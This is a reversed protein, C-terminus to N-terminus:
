IWMKTLTSGSTRCSNGAPIRSSNSAWKARDSDPFCPLTVQLLDDGEFLDDGPEEFLHLRGCDGGDPWDLRFIYRFGTGVM